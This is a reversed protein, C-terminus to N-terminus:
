VRLCAVVFWVGVEVQVEVEPRAGAVTGIGADGVHELVDLADDVEDLIGSAPEPQRHTTRTRTAHPGVGSSSPLRRTLLGM